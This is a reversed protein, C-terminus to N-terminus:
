FYFSISFTNMVKTTNVSQVLGGGDVKFQILNRFFSKLSYGFTTYPNIACDLLVPTVELGSICRCFGEPSLIDKFLVYFNM